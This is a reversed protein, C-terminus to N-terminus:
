LASYPGWVHGWRNSDGWRKVIYVSVL